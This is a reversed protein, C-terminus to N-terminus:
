EKWEVEHKQAHSMSNEYFQTRQLPENHEMHVNDRPTKGYEVSPSCDDVPADMGRDTSM